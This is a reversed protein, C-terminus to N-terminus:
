RVKRSRERRERRATTSRIRKEELEAVLRDDRVLGKPGAGDTDHSPRTFSVPAAFPNFDLDDNLDM